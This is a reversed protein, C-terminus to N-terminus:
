SGRFTAGPMETNFFMIKDVYGSEPFHSANYVQQYHNNSSYGCGFPFCNGNNPTPPNGFEVSTALMAANATMTSATAEQEINILECEAPISGDESPTACVPPDQASLSGTIVLVLVFVLALMLQISLGKHKM